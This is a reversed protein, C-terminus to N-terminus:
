GCCYRMFTKWTRVDVLAQKAALLDKLSCPQGPEFYM